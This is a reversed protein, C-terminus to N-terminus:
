GDKGDRVGQKTPPVMEVPEDGRPGGAKTAAGKLTRFEDRGAKYQAAVAGVDQIRFEEDAKGTKM